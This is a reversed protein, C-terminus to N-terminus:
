SIFNITITLQIKWTDYSQFRVIVKDRYEDLSLSRNKKATVNM